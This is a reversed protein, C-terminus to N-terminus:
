SDDFFCEITFVNLKMQHHLPLHPDRELNLDFSWDVSLLEAMCGSNEEIAVIMLKFKIKRDVEVFQGKDNLKKIVQAPADDM